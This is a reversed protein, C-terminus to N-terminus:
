SYLTKIWNEQQLKLDFVYENSDYNKKTLITVDGIIQEPSFLNQDDVYEVTNKWFHSPLIRSPVNKTDKLIGAELLTEAILESCFMGQSDKSVIPHLPVTLGIMEEYASIWFRWSYPRGINKQIFALIKNSESISVPKYLRRIYILSKSYFTELDNRPIIYPINLGVESANSPNPPDGNWNQRIYVHLPTMYAGIKPSLDWVWLHGLETKYIMACHNIHSSLFYQQIKSTLNSSKTFIMDGTKLTSLADEYRIMQINLSRTDHSKIYGNLLIFFISCLLIKITLFLTM